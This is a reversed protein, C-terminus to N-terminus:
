GPSDETHPVRAVPRVPSPRFVNDLICIELLQRREGSKWAAVEDLICALVTGPANPQFFFVM